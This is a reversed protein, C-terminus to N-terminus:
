DGSPEFRIPVTVRAPVAVGGKTGCHGADERCYATNERKDVIFRDHGGCIPCPGHCFRPGDYTLETFMKAIENIDYQEQLEKDIRNYKEKVSENM